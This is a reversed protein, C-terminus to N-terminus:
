VYYIKRIQVSEHIQMFWMIHEYRSYLKLQASELSENPVQITFQEMIGIAGRVKGQFSVKM